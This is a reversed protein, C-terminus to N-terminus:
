KSEAGRNINYVHSEIQARIADTIDYGAEILMGQVYGLRQTGDEDDVKFMQEAANVLDHIFKDLKDAAVKSMRSKIYEQAKLGLAITILLVGIAALEIIRNLILEM